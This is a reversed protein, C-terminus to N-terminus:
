SFPPILVESLKKGQTYALFQLNTLALLSCWSTPVLIEFLSIKFVVSGIKIIRKKNHNVKARRYCLSSDNFESVTTVIKDYIQQIIIFHRLLWSFTLFKPNDKRPFRVHESYNKCLLVLLKTFKKTTLSFNASLM